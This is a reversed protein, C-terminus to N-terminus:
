ISSVARNVAMKLLSSLKKGEVPSFMPAADTHITHPGNAQFGCGDLDAFVGLFMPRIIPMLWSVAFGFNEAWGNLAFARQNYGVTTTRV